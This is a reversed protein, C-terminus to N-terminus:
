EPFSFSGKAGTWWDRYAKVGEAILDPGASPNYDIDTKKLLKKCSEYAKSRVSMSGDEMLTFILPVISKHKMYGLAMALTAKQNNTGALGGSLIEYLTKDKNSEWWNEWADKGRKINDSNDSFLLDMQSPAGTVASLFKDGLARVSADGSLVGYEVLYRISTKGGAFIKKAQSEIARERALAPSRAITYMANEFDAPDLSPMTPTPTPTPTASVPEQSLSATGGNESPDSGQMLVILVVVLALVGVGIGGLLIVNPGGSDDASRTSRGPRPRDPPPSDPRRASRSPRDGDPRPRRRPSDDGDPRHRKRGAPPGDDPRRRRPTRSRSSQRRQPRAAERTSDLASEHPITVSAGCDPCSGRKGAANEPAEIPSGCEPCKFLIPM